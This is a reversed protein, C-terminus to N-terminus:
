RASPGRLNLGIEIADLQTMVYTVLSADYGGEQPRNTRLDPWKSAFIKKDDYVQFSCLDQFHFLNSAQGGMKPPISKWIDGERFHFLNTVADIIFKFSSESDNHVIQVYTGISPNFIFIPRVKIDHILFQLSSLLGSDSLRRSNVINWNAFGWSDGPDFVIIRRLKELQSLLTIAQKGKLVHPIIEGEVKGKEILHFQREDPLYHLQSKDNSNGSDQFSSIIRSCSAHQNAFVNSVNEQESEGRGSAEKEPEREKEVIEKKTSFESKNKIKSEKEVVVSM